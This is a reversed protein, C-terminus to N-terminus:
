QLAACIGAFLTALFLQMRYLCEVVYQTQVVKGAECRHAWQACHIPYGTYAACLRTRQPRAHCVLVRTWALTADVAPPQPLRSAPSFFRASIVKTGRRRPM